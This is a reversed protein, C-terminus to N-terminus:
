KKRLVEKREAGGGGSELSAKEGHDKKLVHMRHGSVAAPVNGLDGSNIQCLLAM